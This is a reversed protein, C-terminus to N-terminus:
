TVRCIGCKLLLILHEMATLRQYTGVNIFILESKLLMLDYWLVKAGLQINKSTILLRNV